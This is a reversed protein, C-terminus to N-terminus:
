TSEDPMRLRFFRNGGEQGAQFFSAVLFPTQLFHRLARSQFARPESCQAALQRALTRGHMEIPETDPPPAPEQAIRITRDRVDREVTSERRALVERFNEAAELAVLRRVIAAEGAFRTASPANLIQLA